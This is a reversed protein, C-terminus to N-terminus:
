RGAPHPPSDGHCRVIEDLESHEFVYRYGVDLREHTEHFALWEVVSPDQLTGLKRYPGTYHDAYMIDFQCTMVILSGNKVAGGGLTLVTLM